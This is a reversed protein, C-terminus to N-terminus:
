ILLPVSARQQHDPLVAHTRKAANEDLWYSLNDFSSVIDQDLGFLDPILKM